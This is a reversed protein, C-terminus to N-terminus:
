LKIFFRKRAKEVLFYSLIGVLVSILVCSLYVGLVVYESATRLYSSYIDLGKKFFIFCVEQMIYIAYAYVGLKGLAQQNLLNALYTQKFLFSLILLALLITFFMNNAFKFNHFSVHYFIFGFLFVEGLNWFMKAKISSVECNQSVYRYIKWVLIGLGIESLARVMGFNLLSFIVPKIHSDFSGSHSNVMLVFSFYVLLVTLFLFNKSEMRKYLAFYFLSVWFLSSVFWASENSGFEMTLGTCQLLFLNLIDTYKNISVLGFFSAGWFCLISFCLEPWLRFFKQKAFSWIDLSCNEMKKALFVGSLIFFFEVGFYGRLANHQIETILPIQNVFRSFIGAKVVLHFNVIVIAFLFRLFDLNYFKSVNLQKPNTSM